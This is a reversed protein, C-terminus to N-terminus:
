DFYRFSKFCTFLPMYRPRLRCKHLRRRTGRGRQVAVYTRVATLISSEQHHCPSRELPVVPGRFKAGPPPADRSARYGGYGADVRADHALGTWTCVVDGEPTAQLCQAISCEHVHGSQKCVPRPGRLSFSCDCSCVHTMAHAHLM